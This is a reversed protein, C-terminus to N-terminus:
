KGERRVVGEEEEEVAGTKEGWDDEDKKESDQDKTEKRRM